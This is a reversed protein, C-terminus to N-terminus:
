PRRPLDDRQARDCRTGGDPRREAGVAGDHASMIMQCIALGLGMGDAKTTYFPEFVRPLEDDTLGLGDGLLKLTQPRPHRRRGAELTKIAEVSIGSAAALKEQSLAAAQRFSRLVQGFESM